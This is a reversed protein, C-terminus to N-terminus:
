APSWAIRDAAFVPGELCVRRYDWDGTPEKVPCVCSFCVGYGCAMKTELSVWCPIRRREALESLAELMPEPGCGFLATPPDPGDLLEVALDTAYGRKGASGDNTALRVDVGARVFDAVGAFLDASRAGYALTIRRPRATTRGSGYTRRGLMERAVALFPTQGVGGAVFLLHGDLGAGATPFTNGLPGWIEVTEGAAARQLTRTGNGMVLYVIDLGAPSGASVDFTEYLAYPRALLPDSRGAVRLMVFQGPLIRGAIEPEAVKLRYTDRAVRDNALVVGTRQIPPNAPPEHSM